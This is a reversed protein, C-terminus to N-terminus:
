SKDSKVYQDVMMDGKLGSKALRYRHVEVYGLSELTSPIGDHVRTADTDGPGVTIVFVTQRGKLYATLASRNTPTTTQTAWDWSGPFTTPIGKGANLDNLYYSIPVGCTKAPRCIIGDGAQYHQLVWGVNELMPQKEARPYYGRPTDVMLLILLLAACTAIWSPRLMLIGIAALLSIAPITAILYKSQFFHFNLYSQTTLFQGIIPVFAWSMVSITLGSRRMLGFVVGLVCAAILVLASLLHGGMQEEFFGLVDSLKAPPVWDNGGKHNLKALLLLPICAVGISFLTVIGSFFITRWNSTQFAPLDDVYRSVFPLLFLCVIVIQAALNFVGLLDTYIALVSLSGFIVWWRKSTPNKLLYFFAWWSLSVVLAEMAYARATQAMTIIINNLIFVLGAIVGTSLKWWRAGIVMVVLTALTMSVFSLVRTILPSPILGIFETARLWIHLLMEYLLMNAEGTNAFVAWSQNSLTVSYTEDYWLSLTNVRYSFIALAFVSIVGLLTPKFWSRHQLETLLALWRARPSKVNLTRERASPQMVVGPYGSFDRQTPAAGGSHQEERNDPPYIEPM